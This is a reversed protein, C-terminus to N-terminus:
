KLRLIKFSWDFQELSSKQHLLIWELVFLKNKSYYLGLSSVELLFLSKVKNWQFM